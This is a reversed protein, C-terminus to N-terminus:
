ETAERKHNAIIERAIDAPLPLPATEKERRLRQGVPGRYHTQIQYYHGREDREIRTYPGTSMVKM